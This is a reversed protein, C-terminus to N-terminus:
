ARKFKESVAKKLEAYPLDMLSPNKMMYNKVQSITLGLEDKVAWANDKIQGTFKRKIPESEPAQEPQTPEPIVENYDHNDSGFAEKYDKLRDLQTMDLLKQRKDMPNNEPILAGDKILQHIKQRKVGLYTAAQMVTYKDKM